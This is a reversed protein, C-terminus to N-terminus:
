GGRGEGLGGEGTGPEPVRKPSCWSAPFAMAMLMSIALTPLFALFVYM